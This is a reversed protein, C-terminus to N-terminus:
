TKSSGFLHRQLRWMDEMAPFNQPTQQEQPCPLTVASILKTGAKSVNLIWKDKWIGAHLSPPANGLPPCLGQLLFVNLSTFRVSTFISNVKNEKRRLNWWPKRSSEELATCWGPPFMRSLCGSSCGRGTGPCSRLKVPQEHACPHYYLCRLDPSFYWMPILDSATQFPFPGLGWGKLSQWAVSLNPHPLLASCPAPSPVGRSMPPHTGTATTWAM